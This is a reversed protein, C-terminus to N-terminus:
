RGKEQIPAESPARKRTRKQKKRGVEAPMERTDHFDLHREALLSATTRQAMIAGRLATLAAPRNLLLDQWSDEMCGRGWKDSRKFGPPRSAAFDVKTDWQQSSLELAACVGAAKPAAFSTGSGLGWGAACRLLIREGWMVCQVAPGDASWESAVGDRRCSGIVNSAGILKQPYVVDCGRRWNGNNGAAGFDCLDLRQIMEAYREAWPQWFVRAVMDMLDDNGHHLGWSRVVVNPRLDEIMDLAWDSAGKVEQGTEGLMRLFILEANEQVAGALWGVQLGHPHQPVGRISDPEYGSIRCGPLESRYEDSIGVPGQTDLVAIKMTGDKGHEINPAGRDM